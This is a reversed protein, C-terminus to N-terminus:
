DKLNVRFFADNDFIKISKYHCIYGTIIDDYKSGFDNTQIISFNIVEEQRIWWQQWELDPPNNMGIEIWGAAIGVNRNPDSPSYDMEEWGSSTLLQDVSSIFDTPPFKNGLNYYVQTSETVGTLMTKNRDLKEIFGPVVFYDPLEHPDIPINQLAPNIKTAYQQKNFRFLTILIATSVIILISITIYKNTTM